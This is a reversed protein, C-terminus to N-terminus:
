CKAFTLVDTTKPIAVSHIKNNSEFTSLKCDRANFSATKAMQFNTRVENLIAERSNFSVFM